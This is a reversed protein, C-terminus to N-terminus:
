QGGGNADLQGATKTGQNGPVNSLSQKGVLFDENGAECEKTQGPSASNPYPNSHLYNDISPGNAPGSSPGSESNPGQPTTVIIFRQWTGNKDGESLLSAINRFWLTVYNCTTQAPTLFALTPKLTTVTDTLRDVGLNVIPDQSFDAVTTFLSALQRNLPPTRKLAPTGLELADALDPLTSPLVAAGPRLDRAFGASNELFVRQVPFGRIGADEAAPSRSITEQIFPRAVGALATFTTDLNSFLEAQTRAVPAVIRATRELAPFLRELRTVKASLNTMVPQLNKFLDPLVAIAENLDQGRGALGGGFGRLVNRQGERTKKTFTNIVTDFEVPDPTANAMSVTSGPAFGDKKSGPTIELYKLGLASRPRVLLHSDVPLQEISKQLKMHIRAHTSGDPSRVPDIQDVVGVRFGGIRIENGAVLNAANPLDANLDYTPVFPLGNNANYSLFVAVVVVLTTLAGILVPSGALSTSGRRSV